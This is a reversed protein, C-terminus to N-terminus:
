EALQLNLGMRALFKRIGEDGIGNHRMGWIKIVRGEFGVVLDNRTMWQEGGVNGLDILRGRQIGVFVILPIKAGEGCLILVKREGSSVLLVGCIVDLVGGPGPTLFQSHDLNAVTTPQRERNYPGGSSEFLWFKENEGTLLYSDHSKIGYEELVTDPIPADKRVM